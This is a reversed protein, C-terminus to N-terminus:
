CHNKNKEYIVRMGDLTLNPILTHKIKLGASILSSFGGTLIITTNEWGTEKNIRAVMGEVEDIAGFMIGAQLNTATDKGIPSKPIVFATEKLLAAMKILHHASVDIGPAISGGIFVGNEDIVDYTTATGFDVIITPTGHLEIGAAVNCLRDAGVEVPNAVDLTVGCNKHSVLLPDINFLNQVAEFYITGLDPVVSSIVAGGINNNILSKLKIWFNRDSELRITQIIKDSDYIAYVVNTNGIDIALLM